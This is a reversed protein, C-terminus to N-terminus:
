FRAGVMCDLTTAARVEIATAWCVFSLAGLGVIRTAKQPLEEHNGSPTVWSFAKECASLSSNYNVVKAYLVLMYPFPM